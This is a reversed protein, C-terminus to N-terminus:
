FCLNTIPMDHASDKQLSRQDAEEACDNCVMQGKVPKQCEIRSCKVRVGDKFKENSNNSKTM